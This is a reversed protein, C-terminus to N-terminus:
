NKTERWTNGGISVGDSLQSVLIMGKKSLIDINYETSLLAFVVAVPQLLPLETFPKVCNRTIETDSPDTSEL